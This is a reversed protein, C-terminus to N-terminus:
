HQAGFLMLYCQDEDHTYNPVTELAMIDDMTLVMAPVADSLLEARM